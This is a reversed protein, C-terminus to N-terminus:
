ALEPQPLSSGTNVKLVRAAQLYPIQVTYRSLLQMESLQTEL